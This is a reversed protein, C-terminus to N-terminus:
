LLLYKVGVMHFVFCCYEDFDSSKESEGGGGWGAQLNKPNKQKKNKLLHFLHHPSIFSKSSKAKNANEVYIILLM